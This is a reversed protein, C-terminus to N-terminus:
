TDAEGAQWHLHQAACHYFWPPLVCLRRVLHVPSRRPRIRFLLYLPRCRAPYPSQPLPTQQKLFSKTWYFPEFLAYAPIPLTWAFPKCKGNFGIVSELNLEKCEDALAMTLKSFSLTPLPRYNPNTLTPTTHPPTKTSVCIQFCSLPSTEHGSCLLFDSPSPSGTPAIFVCITHSGTARYGFRNPWPSPAELLIPRSSNM